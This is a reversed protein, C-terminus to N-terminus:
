IAEGLIERIKNSVLCSNEPPTLTFIVSFSKSLYKVSYRYSDRFFKQNVKSNKLSRGLFKKFSNDLLFGESIKLLVGSPNKFFEWPSKQLFERSFGYLERLIEQLFQLPAGPLVGTSNESSNRFESAQFKWSEQLFEAPNGPPFVRFSEQLFYESFNRPFDESSNIPSIQLFIELVFM